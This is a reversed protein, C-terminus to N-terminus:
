RRRFLPRPEDHSAQYSNSFDQLSALMAGVDADDPIEFANFGCRKLYFLQDQMYDGAAQLEGSFDCDERLIRALSFGRGDAFAAFRIAIVPAKALTRNLASPDADGGIWLGIAERESEPLALWADLPVLHKGSSLDANDLDAQEVTNWPNEQLKGDKVLKPM